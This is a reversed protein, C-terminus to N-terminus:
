CFPGGRHVSEMLSILGGIMMELSKTSPAPM